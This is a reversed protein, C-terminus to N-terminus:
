RRPLGGSVALNASLLIVFVFGNAKLYATGNLESIIGYTLSKVNLLLM